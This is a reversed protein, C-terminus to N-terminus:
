LYLPEVKVGPKVRLVTFENSVLVDDIGEPIVCIARNVANIHSVVIHNTRARGIRNYSVERGLVTEGREAEGEYSIRLFTYPTDQSLVVPDDVPDVLQQLEKVDAGAQQWRAELETVTWPRLFKADLPTKLREPAVLWPGKKGALYGDFARAIETMEEVAKTRAEAAVSPRTKPVVDDLGIYRSEFVFAAPQTEEVDQRKVLYLISTKARAGARQFADGHLSIVGRIIFRERIFNRVDAYNKGSLVSDDIVTL